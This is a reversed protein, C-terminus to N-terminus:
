AGQATGAEGFALLIRRDAPGGDEVLHANLLFPRPGVGPVPHEIPRGDIPGGGAELDEVVKRLTAVDWTRQSLDALRRGVLGELTVDFTECFAPNVREVRLDAGELVMFPQHVTHVLAEAFRKARELEEEAGVLATIDFFTLVAGEIRNDLSKYPKVLLEYRNREYDQRGEVRMRTPVVEDVTRRVLDGMDDLMVNPSIHGIPRGIDGQILNMLGEAAPTFRRIKLERDVIVVAVQVSALLNELDSNVRALEQNRGHLEDNLTNLEENSSQLEERATDLEENTSQLEENSSLIEENATQLEENTAELDQIVSQLYARQTSLEEELEQIRREKEDESREERPADMESARSKEEPDEEFLILFYRRQDGTELPAVEVDLRRIADGYRVRLGERRAEKGTERVEHLAGRLGHLLGERAMKMVNHTPEGSAPELYAGTSGRIYLIQHNEDVVVAPPSFHSVIFRDAERQIPTGRAEPPVTPVEGAPRRTDPVSSPKHHHIRTPGPAPAYIRHRKDVPRFLESEQGPAEAEGLM